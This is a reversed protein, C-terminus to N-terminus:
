ETRDFCCLIINYLVSEFKAMCIFLFFDFKEIPINLNFEFLTSYIGTGMKLLHLTRALDQADIKSCSFSSFSPSVSFSHVKYYRTDM